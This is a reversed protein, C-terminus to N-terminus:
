RVTSWVGEVVFADLITGFKTRNAEMISEVAMIKNDVLLRRYSEQGEKSWSVYFIAVMVFTCTYVLMESLNLETCTSCM